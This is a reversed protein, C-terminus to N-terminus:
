VRGNRNVLLFEFRTHQARHCSDFEGINLKVIIRVYQCYSGGYGPPCQCLYGGYTDFCTGHNLCPSAVCENVNLECLRGMYGTHGCECTFNNLNDHCIGGNRCPKPKCEDKNLECKLGEFGPPCLCEINGGNKLCTAGNSCPNHQCQQHVIVEQECHKGTFNPPCWCVYEGTNDSNCTAGNKCIPPTKDCPIGLDIECNKGTYRPLCSCTYGNQGNHCTGQRMCPETICSNYSMLNEKPIGSLLDRMESTEAGRHYECSDEPIPCEEFRVNYNYLIISDNFVLSPGELLCGNFQKGILLV